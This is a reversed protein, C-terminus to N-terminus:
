EEDPQSEPRIKVTAGCVRYEGPDPHDFVHGRCYGVYFGNGTFNNVHWYLGALPGTHGCSPCEVEVDLVSALPPIHGTAFTERRREERDRRAYDALSM